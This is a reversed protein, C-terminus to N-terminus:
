GVIKRFRDEKVKVIAFVFSRLRGIIGVNEDQFAREICQTLKAGWARGSGTVDHVSNFVTDFGVTEAVIPKFGAFGRVRDITDFSTQEDFTLLLLCAV